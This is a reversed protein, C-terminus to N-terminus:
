LRVMIIDNIKEFKDINLDKPTLEIYNETLAKDPSITIARLTKGKM